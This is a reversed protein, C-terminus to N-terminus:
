MPIGFEILIYLVEWRVSDSTKKFDIYLHCQKMTNGNKERLYKIFTSYIILLQGTAYCDVSITGILKRQM